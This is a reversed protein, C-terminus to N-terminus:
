AHDAGRIMSICGSYQVVRKLSIIRLSSVIKRILLYYGRGAFVMLNIM